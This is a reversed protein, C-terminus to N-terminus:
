RGSRGPIAALADLSLDLGIDRLVAAYFEPPEELSAYYDRLSTESLAGSRVQSSFEHDMYSSVKNIRALAAMLKLLRCGSALYNQPVFSRIPSWGTERRAIDMIDQPKYPLYLFPTVVECAPDTQLSFDPLLASDPNPAALAAAKNFLFATRAAIAEQQRKRLMDTEIALTRGMGFLQEPNYGVIVAGIGRRKAEAMATDLMFKGCFLCLQGFDRDMLGPTTVLFRYFARCVNPDPRLLTQEIGLSEALRAAKDFTEPYEFGNDITLGVLRLGYRRTLLYALYASDKGGSMMLAADFDGETGRLSDLRAEFTEGLTKWDRAVPRFTRCLPCLGDADITLGSAPDEQLLCRRCRSATYQYM